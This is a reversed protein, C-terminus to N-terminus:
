QTVSVIPDDNWGYRSTIFAPPRRQSFSAALVHSPDDFVGAKTIRTITGNEVLVSRHEQVPGRRLPPRRSCASAARANTQVFFASLPLLAALAIPRM